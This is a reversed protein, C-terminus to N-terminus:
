TRARMSRAPRRSAISQPGVSRQTIPELEFTLGEPSRCIAAPNRGCEGAAFHLAADESAFLGGVKGLRDQVVWWGHHDRGVTFRPKARYQRSGM